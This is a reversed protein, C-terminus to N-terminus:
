SDQQNTRYIQYDFWISSKLTIRTCRPYWGNDIATRWRGGPCRWKIESCTHGAAPYVELLAGSPIILTLTRFAVEGGSGREQAAAWSLPLTSLPAKEPAADADATAYAILSIALAILIGITLWRLLTNDTRNM